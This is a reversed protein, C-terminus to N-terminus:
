SRKSSLWGRSSDRGAFSLVPVATRREHRLDLRHRQGGTHPEFDDFL